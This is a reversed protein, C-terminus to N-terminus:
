APSSAFLRDLAVHHPPTAMAPAPALASASRRLRAGLLAQMRQPWAPLVIPESLLPGKRKFVDISLAHPFPQVSLALRLPAASSEQRAQEPRFAFLLGAHQAACAHLRRMHEPRAQPLWSLVTSVCDSKLAQETAWLREAPTRAEVQILQETPLGAQWLAPLFPSLPAGVLILQGGQACLRQLTPQLLRWEGQGTQRSLIETLSQCPWGGDPLVQDLAEHGSAMVAAHARGMAHGRWLAAEIHSPLASPLSLDISM